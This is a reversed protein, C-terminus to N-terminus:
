ALLFGPSLEQKPIQRGRPLYVAVRTSLRALHRCMLPGVEGWGLRGLGCGLAPIALSEIGEREYKGEIWALGDEIGALDAKDRWHSKTAFLLFWKRDNPDRLSAPDDALEEDLYAERRYLYPKGMRLTKKRCADQYAVYVDPFQYKARSALGKGMVGVVNVSVTVTQMHSFFMDGEVLSLTNTLRHKGVPQFFMNPEPVVSIGASGTGRRITDATEQSAVYVSHIQEPPVREPVLCEAMMKRKSGDTPNWWEGNIIRWIRKVEALGREPSLIDSVPSAANGTSVWAGDADLASPRVAVVALQKHGKEHVVRYMMANRPQFYLNAYEWLSRGAPTQRDKRHTVIAKDYIRTFELQQEEVSAHSLIGHRLISPINEVHTIYYLSKVNPKKSM